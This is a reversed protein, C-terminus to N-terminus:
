RRPLGARLLMNTLDLSARYWGGHTLRSGWFSQRPKMYTLPVPKGFPYVLQVVRSKIGNPGPVV